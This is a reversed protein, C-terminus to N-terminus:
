PLEHQFGIFRYITNKAFLIVENFMVLNSLYSQPRVSNGFTLRAYDAMFMRLVFDGGGVGLRWAAVVGSYVM